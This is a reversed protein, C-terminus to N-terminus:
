RGVEAIYSCSRSWEGPTLGAETTTTSDMTIVLSGNRTTIQQPDYWELDATAGYWLDVAEWFPDDGAYFTRGEVNFEDSFVLEYDEGDFGTRTKASDPTDSDILEPM